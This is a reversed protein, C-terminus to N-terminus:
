KGKKSNRNLIVKYIFVYLASILFILLYFFLLYIRKNDIKNHEVYEQEKQAMRTQKQREFIKTYHNQLWEDFNYIKQAAFEMQEREHKINQHKHHQNGYKILLTRDYQKRTNYRSLVDYANSIEHFKEKAFESKNKDPHYKLTLEYYASKIEKFTSTPSIGLTEYHTKPKTTIQNRKTYLFLMSRKLYKTVTKKSINIIYIYM